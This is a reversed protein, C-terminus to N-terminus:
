KSHPLLVTDIVHIVGNMAIVDTKVVNSSGNLVVGKESNISVKQGNLTMAESLTVVNSALVKGSVVHFLLVSKLAQPDKLLGDM